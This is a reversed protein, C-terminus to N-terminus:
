RGMIGMGKRGKCKENKEQELEEQLEAETPGAFARRILEEQTLNVTTAKVVDYSNSGCSPLTKTENVVSTDQDKLVPTESVGIRSIPLVFAAQKVNVIVESQKKKNSKKQKSKEVSLMWPNSEKNSEDVSQDLATQVSSCVKGRTNTGTIEEKAYQLPEQLKFDISNKFDRVVKKDVKVNDTSGDVNIIGNIELLNSNGFQLTNVVLKGAPLLNANTEEASKMAAKTSKPKKKLPSTPEDDNDEGSRENSLDDADLHNAELEELLKKAEEKASLFFTPFIFHINLFLQM